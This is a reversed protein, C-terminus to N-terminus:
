ARRSLEYKVKRGAHNGVVTCPNKRQMPRRRLRLIKKLDHDADEAFPAHADESSPEYLPFFNAGAVPWRSDNRKITENVKVFRRPRCPKTATVLSRCKKM